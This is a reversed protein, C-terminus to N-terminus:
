RRLITWLCSKPVLAGAFGLEQVCRELEAAAAPPDNMPLMVFGMYRSKNNEVARYLKDNAAICIELSPPEVGPTHSIVQMSIAGADM